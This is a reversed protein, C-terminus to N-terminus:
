ITKDAMLSTDMVAKKITKKLTYQVRKKMPKHDYYMKVDAKKRCFSCTIEMSVKEVHPTDLLKLAYTIHNKCVWM